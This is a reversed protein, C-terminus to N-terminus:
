LSSIGNGLVLAGFVLFLVFMLTANNATLWAKWSTLVKEARKGGFLCTLVSAAVTASGVAVFVIMAIWPDTEGLSGGTDQAISMAAALILALNKPNLAALACAMVFSKAPGFEEIGAMWGPLEPEEGKGPRKRWQRMAAVLLLAGLAIRLVAAGRSPGGGGAIDVASGLLIFATCASALGLVWGALFLPGNSRARRSFLTLIVAVIPVPSIAVGVAPSLVDGIANGM